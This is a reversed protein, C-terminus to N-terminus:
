HKFKGVYRKLLLEFRPIIFDFCIFTLNFLVMFAALMAWHMAEPVLVYMVLMEVAFILINFYLLKGLARLPKKEIRHFYPQLIPYCGFFCLFMLNQEIEPVLIISIISVALWLALHYKRGYKRGLPILFLGAFMPSAYLGIGIWAGVIMIVVCLACIMGCEAIRKSTNM